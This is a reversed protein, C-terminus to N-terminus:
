VSPVNLDENELTQERWKPTVELHTRGSELPNWSTAGTPPSILDGDRVVYRSIINEPDKGNGIPMLYRIKLGM